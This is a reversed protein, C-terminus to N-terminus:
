SLLDLIVPDDLRRAIVTANSFDHRASHEQPISVVVANAAAAANTGNQSDELVLMEEPTVSLREAAALYIEPHPKGRTVDEATLTTDFRPLLGFQDLIREMYPRSSSTAVAKPLQRSEIHELLEYLGPMPALRDAALEFFLVQTETALEHVTDPLDHMDIMIQLAEVARRGMMQNILEPTMVRGRRRLLERGVEDFILETNFMLGDLDFVVARIPM